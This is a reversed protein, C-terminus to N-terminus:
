FHNVEEIEPKESETDSDASDASDSLDSSYLSDSSESSNSSNSSSSAGSRLSTCPGSSFANTNESFTNYKKNQRSIQIDNENLFSLISDLTLNLSKNLAFHNLEKVKLIKELHNCYNEYAMIVIRSKKDLSSIFQLRADSFILENM